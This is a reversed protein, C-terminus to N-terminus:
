RNGHYVKFSRGFSFIRYQFPLSCQFLQICTELYFYRFIHLFEPLKTKYGAFAAVASVLKGIGFGALVVCLAARSDLM